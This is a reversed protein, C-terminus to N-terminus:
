CRSLDWLLVETDFHLVHLYTCKVRSHDCSLPSPFFKGLAAIVRFIPKIKREDIKESWDKTYLFYVYRGYIERFLTTCFFIRKDLNKINNRLKEKNVNGRPEDKRMNTAEPIQSLRHTVLGKPNRQDPENIEISFWFWWLPDHADFIRDVWMRQMMLNRLTGFYRARM